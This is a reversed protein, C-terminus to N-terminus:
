PYPEQVSRGRAPDTKWPLAQSGSVLGACIDAVKPFDIAGDDSEIEKWYFRFYACSSPLGALSKDRDAFQILSVVWKVFTDTM